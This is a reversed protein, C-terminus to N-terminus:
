AASVIVHVVTVKKVKENEYTYTKTIKKNGFVKEESVINDNEYTFTTTITFTGVTVIVKSINEGDYVYDVTFDKDFSMLEYEIERIREIARM